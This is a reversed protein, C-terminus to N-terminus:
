NFIYKWACLGCLSGMIIIIIIIITIL